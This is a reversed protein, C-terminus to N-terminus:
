RLVEDQRSDVAPFAASDNKPQLILLEAANEAIM